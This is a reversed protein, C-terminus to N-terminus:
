EDLESRLLKLAARARTKVTGLPIQLKDAAEVQTFGQYYLLDIVERQDASLKELLSGMGISDVKKETDRDVAIPVSNLISQNKSGQRYNKSRLMDIAGNRAISIMWSFITGKSRDYAKINMWIKVFSEQLVDEALAESKLIFKLVGYIAASYDDYLRAFAAKDGSQLQHLFAEDLANKVTPIAPSM